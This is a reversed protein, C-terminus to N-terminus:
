TKATSCMATEAASIIVNPIQAESVDSVIAAVREAEADADKWWKPSWARYLNWGRNRLYNEMHWDRERTDMGSHYLRGDCEIGLVFRGDKRVAMDITYSGVGVNRVVDLGKSRLANYVRDSFATDETVTRTVTDPHLSRLIGEATRRDGSSIAFCYQLYLRLLKPGRNKMDEVVLESPNFSTVVHIGTRARSIAVNLRNEGGSQNLWGFNRVLRGNDGKAYGVSFIIIDREDGQVNEINKVFLGVDEGNEKRGIERRCLLSFEPDSACREEIISDILDMQSSNFTIIGITEEGKTRLIDALLDVVREAEPRNCRDKWHGDTIRHVQIAPAHDSEIDPSIFLRGDYFAHNSFEILDSFRSRYHYDLMLSPYRYRATDLLSDSVGTEVIGEIEADDEDLGIRGSGLKSPHLQQHDGAIVVKKARMVSPIGRELFMQSAEDFIVLDFLGSELPLIESVVEPTLLWVRIGRFLEYDFRDIFKSVNWRRKMDLVRRMEPYRKSSVIESISHALMNEAIGKCCAEKEDMLSSIEDTSDDFSDMDRLVEKNASDFRFLHQLSLFSFAEENALNPSCVDNDALKLLMDAYMKGCDTLSEYISSVASYDSFNAFAHIYEDLEGYTYAPDLCRYYTWYRSMVEEVREKMKGKNTMKSFFGGNKWSEIEKKLDKLDYMAMEAEYDNLGPKVDSLWPHQSRMEMCDGIDTLLSRRRFREHVTLLDSCGCDLIHRPMADAFANYRKTQKRDSPDPRELGTYLLYPEMGLVSPTYITEAIRHLMDFRSQIEESLNSLGVPAAMETDLRTMTDMQEYFMGKNNVDDILMCYRSLPGLRSYVVDLAAKKESVMLVTKGSSVFDAIMSTITQSKGTGPPGQIVLRDTGHIAGLAKEQSSNLGNIYFLEKENLIRHELEKADRGPTLLDTLLPNSMGANVIDDFDKQISNSYTPFRGLVMNPCLHLSGEPYLPFCGTRYDTFPELETPGCTIELGAKRYFDLVSDTFRGPEADGFISDPLPQTMGAIKYYGLILTSNFVIDRTDDFRIDIYEPTRILEVPFLVLPAKIDFRAGPLCGEVFPYGIYLDNQGKERLIKTVNRHLQSIRRYAETRKGDATCTDPTVLRIREGRKFVIDLPDILHSLHALDYYEKPNSARPMFLLRNSRSINVLKKELEQLRCEISGDLGSESDRHSDLVKLFDSSYNDIFAKGVGDILSFDTPKRPRIRVMEDIVCDDCIRRAKGTRTRWTERLGDRVSILEDYLTESMHMVEAMICM